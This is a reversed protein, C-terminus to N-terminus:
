IKSHILQQFDNKKKLELISTFVYVLGLLFFNPFSRLNENQSCFIDGFITSFSKIQVFNTSFIKLVSFHSIPRIRDDFQTFTLPNFLLMIHLYVLFPPKNVGM